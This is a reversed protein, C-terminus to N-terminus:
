AAYATMLSAGDRPAPKTRLVELAKQIRRATDRRTTIRNDRRSELFAEAIEAWEILDVGRILAETKEQTVSGVPFCRRHAERLTIGQERMTGLLHAIAASIAEQNAPLFAFPLVVYEGVGDTSRLAFQTRGNKERLRLGFGHQDKLRRRLRRDWNEGAM